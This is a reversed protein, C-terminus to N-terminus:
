GPLGPAPSPAGSLTESVIMRLMRTSAVSWRILARSSAPLWTAEGIAVTVSSALARADGLLDHDGLRDPLQGQRQAAQGVVIGLKLAGDGGALDLDRLVAVWMGLPAHQDGDLPCGISVAPVKVTPPSTERKWRRLM